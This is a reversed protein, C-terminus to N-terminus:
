PAHPLGTLAGMRNGGAGAVFHYGVGSLVASEAATDIGPDHARVQGPENGEVSTVGLWQTGSERLQLRGRVAPALIGTTAQSKV